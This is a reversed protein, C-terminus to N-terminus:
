IGTKQKNDKRTVLVSTKRVDTPGSVVSWQCRVDLMQASRQGSVVKKM